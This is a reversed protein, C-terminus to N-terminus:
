SFQVSYIGSTKKGCLCMNEEAKLFCNVCYYIHYCPEYLISIQNNCNLTICKLNENYPSIKKIFETETRCIPCSLTNYNIMHITCIQCMSIHGCSLLINRTNKFCIICLHPDIKLTIDENVTLTNDYNLDKKEHLLNFFTIEKKTLFTFYLVNIHTILNEIIHNYLPFNIKINEIITSADPDNKIFTFLNDLINIKDERTNEVSFDDLLFSIKNFFSFLKVLETDSKINTCILKYLEQNYEVLIYDPLPNFTCYLYINIFNKFTIRKWMFDQVLAMSQMVEHTDGYDIFSTPSLYSSYLDLPEEMSSSIDIVLILHVYKKKDVNELNLKDKFTLVYNKNEKIWIFDVIDNINNDVVNFESIIDSDINIVDNDCLSYVKIHPPIYMHIEDINKATTRISELVTYLAKNISEVSKGFVFNKSIKELFFKDFDTEHNGIGVSYDFFNNLDEEITNLSTIATQHGDSAIFSITNEWKEKACVKELKGIAKKIQSFETSGFCVITNIYEIIQKVSLSGKVSEDIIPLTSIVKYSHNFFVVSVDSNKENLHALINELAKQVTAIRSM